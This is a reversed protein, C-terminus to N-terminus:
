WLGLPLTYPLKSCCRFCRHLGGKPSTGLFPGMDVWSYINKWAPSYFTAPHLTLGMGGEYGMPSLFPQAKCNGGPFNLHFILCQKGLWLYAYGSSDVVWPLAPNEMMQHRWILTPHRRPQNCFCPHFFGSISLKCQTRSVSMSKSTKRM